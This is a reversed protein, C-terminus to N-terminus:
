CGFLLNRIKAKAEVDLTPIFGFSSWMGQLNYDRRCKLKIGRSSTTIQKLHEVIQKAVGKGRCDPDICLHAIAFWDRSCRYLLYGVCNGESDLAVLIQRRAAHEEFAGKPFNGLTKSNARWLKRVTELHPSHNDIAEIKIQADTAM